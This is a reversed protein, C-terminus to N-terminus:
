TTCFDMSFCWKGYKVLFYRINLNFRSIEGCIQETYQNYHYTFNVFAAEFSWFSIGNGVPYLVRSVKSIKKHMSNSIRGMTLM